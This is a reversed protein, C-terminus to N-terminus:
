KAGDDRGNEKLPNPVSSQTVSTVRIPPAPSAPGRYGGHEEDDRLPPVSSQAVSTVPLWPSASEPGRYGGLEKLLDEPRPSREESM